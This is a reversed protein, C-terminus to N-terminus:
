IIKLLLEDICMDYNTNSMLKRKTKEILQVSKLVGMRSDGTRNIYSFIITMMYDLLEMIIEKSDYLVSYNNFMDVSNKVGGKLLNNTAKEVQNYEDINNSVKILKGISGNCMEFLTDSMRSYSENESQSIYKSMEQKTLGQFNLKVCRSKVTNLLMNENSTIMIIVVYEPPEEITKLLANQAQVTMKESEPVIYIKYPSSYPKIDIDDNIQERIEDVGIGSKEYTIYKIDPQNKSDTQKCSKCQGCATGPVTIREGDENIAKNSNNRECQLAKAFHIALNMKGSGEEGNIIYAHSIKGMRIANEFHRLIHNQGLIRESEM